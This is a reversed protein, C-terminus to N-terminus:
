LKKIFKIAEYVNLLVKISKEELSEKSEYGCSVAVPTIGANLAAQIDLSTDGIMFANKKSKELLSLAKNIPEANPKPMKVDERGIVVQFYKLVGLNELLIQSFHSTKTTVVGLVAFSFAEKLAEKVQPLLKTKELYIQKYHQKYSQVCLDIKDSKVGLKEFMEELPYGILVKIDEEKMTKMGQTQFAYSFSQLIAETSDILTGDLDFLITKELM